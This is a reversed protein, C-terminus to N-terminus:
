NTEEKRVPSVNGARNTEILWHEGTVFRNYDGAGNPEFQFTLPLHTTENREHLDAFVVSYFRDVSIRQPGENTTTPVLDTPDTLDHNNHGQTTSNAIVNWRYFDYSCWQEYTPCQEYCTDYETRYCTDCETEYQPTCTEECESFGNESSTCSESCSEGASVEHCGCEYSEQHPNCNYPNCDHTGHQRTECSANFYGSPAEDQWGSGHLTHRQELHATHRWYTESVTVHRDTDTFLWVMLLVFPIFALVGFVIFGKNNDSQTKNYNNNVSFQSKEKFGDDDDDLSNQVSNYSNYIPKTEVPEKEPINNNAAETKPGGCVSCEGYSNRVNNKCYSCEWNPGAKAMKLLNPDTVAPSSLNKSTDYTERKEKYSGCKECKMNRGLNKHNCSDCNWTNEVTWKRKVYSKGQRM